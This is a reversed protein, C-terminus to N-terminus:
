REDEKPRFEFYVANQHYWPERGRGANVCGFVECFEKDLFGATASSLYPQCVFADGDAKGTHGWHDCLGRFHHQVMMPVCHKSVPYVDASRLSERYRVWARMRKLLWGPIEHPRFGEPAHDWGTKKRNTNRKM